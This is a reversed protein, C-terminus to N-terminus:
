KTREDEEVGYTVIVKKGVLDVPISVVGSGGSKYVIKKVRLKTTKGDVKIHLDEM